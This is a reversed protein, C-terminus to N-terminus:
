FLCNHPFVGYLYSLFAIGTVGLGIETLFKLEKSMGMFLNKEKFNRNLPGIKDGNCFLDELSPASSLALREDSLKEIDREYQSIKNKYHRRTGYLLIGVCGLGGLVLADERNTLSGFDARHAGQMQTPVFAGAAVLTALLMTNIQKKM